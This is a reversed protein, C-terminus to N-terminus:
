ELIQNIKELDEVSLVGASYKLNAHHLVNDHQAQALQRRLTYLMSRANIVDFSTRQGAEYGAINAEVAIKQSEISQKIEHIRTVGGILIYYADRVHREVLSKQQQLSIDAQKKYLKAQRVRSSVAGGQYFNWRVRATISSTELEVGAYDLDLDNYYNYTAILSLNPYRSSSQRKIGIRAVQLQQRTVHLRHNNEHATKIWFGPDNPRPLGFTAKMNLKDLDDHLQGTIERLAENAISLRVYASTRNASALDYGAKAESVDIKASIGIKFRYEMKELHKKLTQLEQERYHIEKKASLVDLYAIIVRLLLLNDTEDYQKDALAHQAWAQENHITADYNFLSQTISISYGRSDYQPNSNLLVTNNFNYVTREQVNQTYFTSASIQPFFRASSQEVVEQSIARIVKAKKIVHDSRQALHYIEEINIALAPRIMLLSAAVFLLRVCMADLFFVNETRSTKRKEHFLDAKIKTVLFKCSM